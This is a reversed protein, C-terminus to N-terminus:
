PMTYHRHGDPACLFFQRAAEARSNDVPLDICISSVFIAALCACLLAFDVNPCRKSLLFFCRDCAFCNCCLWFGRFKPVECIWKIENPMKGVFLFRVCSAAFCITSAFIGLPSFFKLPSNRPPPFYNKSKKPGVSVPRLICKKYTNKVLLEFDAFRYVWIQGKLSDPGLEIKRGQTNVTSQSFSIQRVFLCGETDLFRLSPLIMDNFVVSPFAYLTFCCHKPFCNFFSM